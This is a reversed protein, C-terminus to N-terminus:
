MYNDSNGIFPELIKISALIENVNNNALPNSVSNKRSSECIKTRFDNHYYSTQKFQASLDPDLIDLIEKFSARDHEKTIM